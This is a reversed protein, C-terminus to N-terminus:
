WHHEPEIWHAPADWRPQDEPRAKAPAGVRSPVLNVRMKSGLRFLFAPFLPDSTRIM